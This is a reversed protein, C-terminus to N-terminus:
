HPWITKINSARRSFSYCNSNGSQRYVNNRTLKKLVDEEKSLLEVVEQSFKLQELSGYATIYQGIISKNLDQESIKLLNTISDKPLSIAALQANLYQRSILTKNVGVLASLTNVNTIAGAYGFGHIVPAFLGNSSGTVQPLLSARLKLSDLQSMSAQNKQDKLLPSNTRAIDLYHDLSYTQALSVSSTILCLILGFFFKM